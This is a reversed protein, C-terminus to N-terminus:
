HDVSIIRTVIWGADTKKWVHIFKFVGCDMKGNEMHCFRHQAIQVAGYNAIPYVEMTEKLLTRKLDPVNVAVNRLANVSYTKDTLGGKDHYFELSSDLFAAFSSINKANFASFFLSDQKLITNFLATDIHKQSQAKLIFSALLLFSIFIIKKMITKRALLIAGGSQESANPGNATGVKVM